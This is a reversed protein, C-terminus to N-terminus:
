NATKQDTEEKEKNKPSNIKALLQDKEKESRLSALKNNLTEVESSLITLLKNQDDRIDFAEKLSDEKQWREEETGRRKDEISRREEELGRRKTLDGEISIMNDLERKKTELEREQVQIDILEAKLSTIKNVIKDRSNKATREENRKVILDRHTTVIHKEKELGSQAEKEKELKEKIIKLEGETRTIVHLLKGYIEELRWRDDELERREIEKDWRQREINRKEAKSSAKEEEEELRKISISVEKEQAKIPNLNKDILARRESLSELTKAIENKEETYMEIRSSSSATKLILSELTSDLESISVEPEPSVAKREEEKEANEVADKKEEKQEQPKEAVEKEKRDEDKAEETGPHASKAREGLVAKLEKEIDEATISDLSKQQTKEASETADKKEEEAKPRDVLEPKQKEESPSSREKEKYEKHEVSSATSVKPEPKTLSKPAPATPRASPTVPQKDLPKDATKEEEIQRPPFKSSHLEPRRQDPTRRMAQEQSIKQNFELNAEFSELASAAVEDRISTATQPDQDRLPKKNTIPHSDAQDKKPLYLEALEDFEKKYSTPRPGRGSLHTEEKVNRTPPAPRADTREVSRLPDKPKSPMPISGKKTKQDQDQEGAQNFGPQKKLLAIDQEMTRLAQLGSQREDSQDTDKKHISSTQM